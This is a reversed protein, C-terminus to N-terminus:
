SKSPDGQLKHFFIVNMENAEAVGNRLLQQPSTQLEQAARAAHAILCVLGHNVAGLVDALSCRHLYALKVLAM